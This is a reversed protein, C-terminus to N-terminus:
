RAVRELENWTIPQGDVEAIVETAADAQEDRRDLRFDTRM